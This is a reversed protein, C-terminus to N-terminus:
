KYLPNRIFIEPIKCRAVIYRHFSLLNTAVSANQSQLSTIYDIISIRIREMRANEFLISLDNARIRDLPLCDIILDLIINASQVHPYHNLFRRLRIVLNTKTALGVAAANDSRVSYDVANELLVAKHELMDQWTDFMYM